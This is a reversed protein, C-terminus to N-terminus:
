RQTLVLMYVIICGNTVLEFVLSLGYGTPMVEPVPLTPVSLSSGVIM